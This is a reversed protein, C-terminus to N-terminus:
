QIFTNTFNVTTTPNNFEYQRYDIVAGFSNTVSVTSVTWDDITEFGNTDLISTLAPYSDPYAFYYVQPFVPNFVQSMSPTNGILLKTLGGGDASIDLGHNASGYYYVSAFTFNVTATGSHAGDSVMATYSNNTSFGTNDTQTPETGGAPNPTPYNYFFGDTGTLTLTLIPLSGATTTPTLDVSTIANGTERLGGVPDTALTIMPSDPPYFFQLLTSQITVPVIGLDTGSPIGTGPLDATTVGAPTWLAGEGGGGGHWRQDDMDFKKEKKGGILSQWNRLDSIDLLKKKKIEDVVESVDPNEGDKGDKGDVGDKPTPILLAIEKKSPILKAVKAFVKDEIDTVDADVGDRGDTGNKGNLGDFYDVGKKPTVDKKFSKIEEPTFYDEGAKPTYGDEGRMILDKTIKIGDVERAKRVEEIKELTEQAELSRLMDPDDKFIIKLKAYNKKM